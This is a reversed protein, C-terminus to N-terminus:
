AALGFTESLGAAACTRGVEPSWAAIALEGGARSLRGRFSCLVGLANADIFTVHALDLEVLSAGLTLVESLAERVEPATALDLDGTLAVRARPPDHHTSITFPV